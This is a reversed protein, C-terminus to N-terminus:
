WRFIAQMNVALKRLHLFQEGSLVAGPISLLKLERSINLAFDNPFHLNNQEVLKYEFSQNLETEIFEKRTHIRLEGAKQKAYESNCHAALLAKVKHFELQVAASEPFLKM